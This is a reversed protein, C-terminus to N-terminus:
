EIYGMKKLIRTYRSITHPLVNITEGHVMWNVIEMFKSGRNWIYPTFSVVPSDLVGMIWGPATRECEVIDEMVSMRVYPSGACVNRPTLNFAVMSKGQYLIRNRGPLASSIYYDLGVEEVAQYLEPHLQTLTKLDTDMFAMYGKPMGAKGAIEEIEKMARVCHQKLAEPPCGCEAMVGMGGCHLIPEILGWVGGQSREVSLLEWLQPCTQYRAAHVGIGMKIGTFSALEMLNIMAENHAMEGSHWVLTSLIKGQQAYQMLECVEDFRSLCITMLLRLYDEILKKNKRMASFDRIDSRDLRKMLANAMGQYDILSWYIKVEDELKELIFREDHVVLNGAWFATLAVKKKIGVFYSGVEDILVAEPIPEIVYRCGDRAVLANTIKKLNDLVDNKEFILLFTQFYQTPAKLIQGSYKTACISEIEETTPLEWGALFVACYKETSSLYSNLAYEYLNYLDEDTRGGRSQIVAIASAISENLEEGSIPKLIYNLCGAQMAQKAYEFVGHASIAIVQIMPYYRHIKQMLTIGDCGPMKIDTIVIHPLREECLRFAENGDHAIAVLTANHQKWSILNVLSMRVLSNDDVILIGYMVSVEM